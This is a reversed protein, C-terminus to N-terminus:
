KLYIVILSWWCEEGWKVDPRSEVLALRADLRPSENKTANGATLRILLALPFGSLAAM